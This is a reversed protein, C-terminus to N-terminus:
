GAMVVVHQPRVLGVGWLVDLSYRTQNFENRVQLRLPLGTLPDVMTMAKSGGLENSMSTTEIPRVALAIADRHFALNIARSGRLSFASSTPWVMAPAPSFSVVINTATATADSTVVYTNPDGAVSFVDGIKVTTGNTAGTLTVTNVTRPNHLAPNSSDATTVSIPVGSTVPVGSLTGAIHNPCNQDMYWDYGFKRGIEGEKMTETTGSNMFYQFATLGLANTEADSNLVIRRDPLLSLKNNLVGRAQLAIQPSTAFPTIGPTGVLNAVGKYLNLLSMDIKNALARAAEVIQMSPIGDMVELTEKDTLAFPSEEWFDMPIPVTNIQMMPTNQSYPGPIVAQTQMQTPVPIQITTGLKAADASYSSNVLRPMVANERLTLLASSLIKPAVDLFMNPM